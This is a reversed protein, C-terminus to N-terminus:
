GRRASGRGGEGGCAAPTRYDLYVRATTRGHRCCSQRAKSHQAAPGVLSRTRRVQMCVLRRSYTHPPPLARCRSGRMRGSHRLSGSGRPSGGAGGGVVVTRPRGCTDTRVDRAPTRSTLVRDDRAPTSRDLYPPDIGCLMMARSLQLRMGRTDPIAPPDQHRPPQPRPIRAPTARLKTHQRSQRPVHSRVQRNVKPRHEVHRTFGGGARPPRGRRSPGIDSRHIGRRGPIPTASAASWLPAAAVCVCARCCSCCCIATACRPAARGDRRITLQRRDESVFVDVRDIRSPRAARRPVSFVLRTRGRHM